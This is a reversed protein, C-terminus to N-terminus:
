AEETDKPTDAVEEAKKSGKSIDETMGHRSTHLEQAASEPATGTMDYCAGKHRSIDLGAEEELPDVRLLGLLNLTYFLGGMTAFTWGFLWVIALLQCGLLTWDGGYFLGPHDEQGFAPLILEPKAFLGVSILGWAGGCMHVPIADVADDIRLKILLKSAAIYIWGSVLGIIVGAWTEVGACGATIAALGTLCGNM